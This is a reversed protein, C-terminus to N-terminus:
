ARSLAQCWEFGNAAEHQVPSQRAKTGHVTTAGSHSEEVCAVWSVHVRRIRASLHAGVCRPAADGSQNMAKLTEELQIKMLRKRLSLYHHSSAKHILKIRHLYTARLEVAIQWGAACM